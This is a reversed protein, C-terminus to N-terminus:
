RVPTFFLPVLRTANSDGALMQFKELAKMLPTALSIPIIVGGEIQEGELLTFRKEIIHVLLSESPGEALSIEYTANGDDLRETGYEHRPKGNNYYITTTRNRKLKYAERTTCLEELCKRATQINLRTIKSIESSTVGSVGAKRLAKRVVEKNLGHVLEGRTRLAVEERRLDQNILSLDPKDEFKELDIGSILGRVDTANRVLYEFHM